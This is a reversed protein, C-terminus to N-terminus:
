QRGRIDAIRRSLKPTLKGDTLDRPRGASASGVAANSARFQHDRLLREISVGQSSGRPPEPLRQALGGPRRTRKPLFVV